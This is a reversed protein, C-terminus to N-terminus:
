GGMPAFTKEATLRPRDEWRALLGQIADDLTGATCLDTTNLIAQYSEQCWETVLNEPSFGLGLLQCTERDPALGAAMTQRHAAYFTEASVLFNRATRALRGIGEQEIVMLGRLTAALRLGAARRLTGQDPALPPPETPPQQPPPEEASIDKMNLPRYHADGDPIPNMDELGRVENISFIGRDLLQTYFTARSANDGRMLAQSSHKCYLQPPNLIKRDLEQEYGALIPTLTYLLFFRGLETTNNFTAKSLDGLLVAPIGLFRAVEEVAFRRTELLQANTPDVSGGASQYEWPGWLIGVVNGRSPGQHQDQWSKRMEQRAQQTPNGPHRLIGGPRAGNGFFRAAFEQAALGLGLSELAYQVFSKGSIGNFSFNPVHLIRDPSLLYEQDVKYALEGNEKRGAVVRWPEIPWLEILQGDGAWVIEAYANGWLLRSIELARRFSFSGMEPNPETGLLYSAPHNTAEERGGGSLKRYVGLPLSALVRSLLDVAAFVGSLSLAEEQNVTMGASSQGRGLLWSPVETYGSLPGTEKRTLANALWRGLRHFIGKKVM